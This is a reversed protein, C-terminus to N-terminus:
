KEKAVAYPHLAAKSARIRGLTIASVLFSLANSLSALLPGVVFYLPSAIAPGRIFSLAFTAQTISAAQPQQKDAVIVQLVGSRAPMFFRSFTSLLFVSTYIAPLRLSDPVVLPLLTVIARVLDSVIMTQRRNWRDVFVGAVPGLLFVPAYQAILVGSIAAASHTLVFVWVLVTTSYVFDGMNSIAQGIALLAFNRNILLGKSTPVFESPVKEQIPAETSM